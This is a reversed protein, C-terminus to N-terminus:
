HGGGTDGQNTWQIEPLDNHKTFGKTLPMVLNLFESLKWVISKLIQKRNM